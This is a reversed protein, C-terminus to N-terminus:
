SEYLPVSSTKFLSSASSPHATCVFKAQLRVSHMRNLHQIGSPCRWSLPISSGSVCSCGLSNYVSPSILTLIRVVSHNLSSVTLGRYCCAQDLHRFILCSLISSRRVERGVPLVLIGLYQLEPFRRSVEGLVVLSFEETYSSDALDLCRIPSSAQQLAELLKSLEQTKGTNDERSFCTKVKALPRDPVLTSFADAFSCELTSLAPLAHEGITAVPHAVTSQITPFVQEGYQTSPTSLPSSPPGPPSSESDSESIRVVPTNSEVLTPTIAYDALYLDQLFNQANLFSVLDHDWALDCHFSRLKFTCGRLTWAQASDGNIHLNFFRLRNTRRLASSLSDWYNEPLTRGGSSEDSEDKTDYGNDQEYFDDGARGDSAYVTLAEVHIALRAQSALLSCLQVTKEPNRMYLTNYLAREAVFRFRRSVRALSCLDAKNGVYQVILQYVERSLEM